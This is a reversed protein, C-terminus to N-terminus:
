NIPHVFGVFGRGKPYVIGMGAISMFYRFTGPHDVYAVSLAPILLSCRFRRTSHSRGPGRAPGGKDSWTTGKTPEYEYRYRVGFAIAPLSDYDFPEGGSFWPGQRRCPGSTGGLGGGRAMTIVARTVCYISQRQM